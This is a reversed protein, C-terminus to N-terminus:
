GCTPAAQELEKLFQRTRQDTATSVRLKAPRTPLVACGVGALAGAVLGTTACADWSAPLLIAQVEGWDITDWCRGVLSGAMIGCCAGLLGDIGVLVGRGLRRLIRARRAQGALGHTNM